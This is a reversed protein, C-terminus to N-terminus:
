NEDKKKAKREELLKQVAIRCLEKFNGNKLEFQLQGTKKMLEVQNSEM